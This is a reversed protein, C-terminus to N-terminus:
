ATSNATFVPSTTKRDALWAMRGLALEQAGALDPEVAIDKRFEQEALDDNDGLRVHAVGLTFHAFPLKPNSAIARNLEPVAANEEHRNM